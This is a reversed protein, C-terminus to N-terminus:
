VYLWRRGCLPMAPIAGASNAECHAVEAENAASGERFCGVTSDNLWGTSKYDHILFHSYEMLTALREFGGRPSVAAILPISSETKQM